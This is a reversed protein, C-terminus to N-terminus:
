CAVHPNTRRFRRLLSWHCVQGTHSGHVQNVGLTMDYLRWDAPICYAVIGLFSKQARNSWMDAAISMPHGEEQFEAFTELLDALLM